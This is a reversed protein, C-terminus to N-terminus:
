PRMLEAHLRELTETPSEISEAPGATLPRWHEAIPSPGALHRLHIPQTALETLFQRAADADLVESYMEQRAQRLLVFDPDADRVKEFLRREPWDRGGVRRRGGLPQRLLMLATLAVCRFRERLSWSGAVAQALDADMGEVALLRQWDAASLDNGGVTLVVGLDAVVSAASRGCNRVLRLVALRALADNGARHLPTHVYYDADGWGPVVEILCRGPEPVESVAEQRQLFDCLAGVAAPGLDYDDALLAALAAPGERLAEAARTRLLYLRLALSRAIPWGAGAWQPAPSWGAAQKVVVSGGEQQQVELCRGDLLFRDGPQLRDAFPEDLQGVTLPEGAAAELCVPKTEEALITGLNRRLLRLTREDDLNWHDGDRALRAPLWSSGDAAVGALYALCDDFDRRPLERYPYARCVLAYAEEATFPRQAAMGLLHQCLVDRPHEPVALPEFQATRGAAATVAAELLEAPSATLVLGRRRRNPGHGSRGVRQCLRVAGGPPHVLIVQDVTGIDIGLELSTSSVAVRLRGQKLWREVRRRRPGSLASHHVAIEEAWAPLRRRLGWTLREALSRTNTFILTTRQAQLDPEIRDIVRGVFGPGDDDAVPEIALEWPAQDPVAAIACARGVGAVYAAATSLPACTASLGIRQPACRALAELRELSLALDAGRKSTALAHVEDVVVWRLETFLDSASGHTLLLALSEPTTLLIAPPQQQLHARLRAPTDGTRQMIRVPLRLDRVVGRLNKRADSILAKLPAVYLCAISSRYPEEPVQGLIPLFAALTKGSGTPACLLLHKGAAIAPWALRQATTPASFCNGFWAAIPAALAALATPPAPSPSLHELPAIAEAAM